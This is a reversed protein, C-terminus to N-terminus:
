FPTNLIDLPRYPMAAAARFAGLPPETFQRPNDSLACLANQVTLTAITHEDLEM